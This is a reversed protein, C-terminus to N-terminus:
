KCSRACKYMGLKPQAQSEQFVSEGSHNHIAMSSTQGDVLNEHSDGHLMQYKNRGMEWSNPLTGEIRVGYPLNSRQLRYIIHVVPLMVFMQGVMLNSIVKRLLGPSWKLMENRGKGSAPLPKQLYVGRQVKMKLM